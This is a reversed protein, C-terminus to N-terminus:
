QVIPYGVQGGGAASQLTGIDLFGTGGTSLVGPFGAAKLAAGGGSTNNPAFNNSAGNVFPDVTLPVDNAGASVSSLDGSTNSGYANWNLSYGGLPVLNTAAIGFSSNGFAVSNHLSAVVTQANFNFGDRGNKYAVCSECIWIVSGSVGSGGTQFGDSSAGTNNGAICRICVMSGFFGTATNGTAVCYICYNPGNSQDMRFAAVSGTFGTVTCRICANNGNNFIIADAAGCNEALINEARNASNQINLGFSATSNCNLVFNRFTLGAVSSTINILTSTGSSQLVTVQGNDGRTSTYGSIQTTGNSGLSSSYNITIGTTTSITGTAKVWSINNSTALTVMQPITALAGGLNGTCVSAASGVSRDMTATVTAVSSISYWGTTCGAGGTIHIVNGPSTVGFPNLVSTLNTTTAGIVLDTFAIQAANQQSFDTGTAGAVFAGGNNDNGVGPRIEWTTAAPLAALAVSSCLILILYLRKM